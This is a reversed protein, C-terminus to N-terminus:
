IGYRLVLKVTIKITMRLQSKSKEQNLEYAIKTKEKIENTTDKWVTFRIKYWVLNGSNKLKSESPIIKKIWKIM